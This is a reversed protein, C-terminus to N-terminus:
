PTKLTLHPNSFEPNNIFASDTLMHLFSIIDMKESKTLLLKKGGSKNSVNVLFSSLTPSQQIHENYHDLVEELSSFRGDHMYPATLAINRLTPVRFRGRDSSQNTFKERGPDTAASDLGNNHFLEKFTKPGGHCHECNAGRIMKEPNPANMFLAMGREEQATPNYTGALFKDYNSDASILTREFQAIAKIMLNESIIDTGFAKQFLPPYLVTTRLKAVSANLSQGMEHENTLPFVAQEELSPSRGDWFFNRVWLLNALSMSSRDTLSKDVGENLAKGDTFAMNQQHCNACSLKNNASLKTEYFLLQGLYVGEKTTPNDDPITFRGGFNAPYKLEYPQTEIKQSSSILGCFLFFSVFLCTLYCGRIYKRFESHPWGKERKM